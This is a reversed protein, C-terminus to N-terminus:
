TDGIDGVDGIDGIDGIDGFIDGIIYCLLCACLGSDVFASFGKDIWAILWIKVIM